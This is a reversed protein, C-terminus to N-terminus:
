VWKQVIRPKPLPFTDLIKQFKEKNLYGKQSRRGLWRRWAVRLMYYVWDISDYNGRIGYYQYYGKLKQSLKEWQEKISMHRNFKCWEAFRSIARRLRKRITRRKVVWGGQRSKALYHTFGLFDFTGNERDKWAGRAPRIFRVLRTKDPHLSLGYKGFRKPLVEAVRRADEEHEFGLLADDAFRILFCRGKLRPQVDKVFWDDLVYHLYVNAILPSIVGGQPTGLATYSLQDGDLIGVSFWKGLLRDLGGDNVRRHLLDFFIDRDVTDFFQRIDMDLIWSINYRQILERVAHLAKHPSRGPRFGYSCDYFDQEFVEELLMAVAKQVIKDELILTGIPRQSGDEKPIWTRKIATARYRQTCLREHLERLHEHLGEAYDAATQGDIGPAADKRLRHFAEALLEEDLHHAIREFVFQPDEAAKRAIWQIDPLFTQSSM